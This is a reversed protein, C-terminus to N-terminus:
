AAIKRNDKSLFFREILILLKYSVYKWKKSNLNKM